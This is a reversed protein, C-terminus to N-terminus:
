SLSVIGVLKNHCILPAGSDGRCTDVFPDKPNAVCLLDDTFYNGYAKVCLSNSVISMNGYTIRDAYPGDWYLQGWGLTQCKTGVEPRHKELSIIKIKTNSRPISDSLVLLAIDYGKRRQFKPHPIVKSVMFEMTTQQKKLRNPSGAVVRLRRPRTVIRHGDVVCHAATLIIRSTIIAGACFHNDGFYATPKRTRISVVHRDLDANIPRYGSSIRGQIKVIRDDYEALTRDVFDQEGKRLPRYHCVDTYLSAAHFSGCGITWSIIGTLTNNCILPGGSDGRCPDQKFPKNEGACLMGEKFRDALKQRCEEPTYLRVGLHTALDSLPGNRCLRGWGLLTCHSGYQPPGVPLKIARIASSNEPILGKLRIIAIDNLNKRVFNTNAVLSRVPYQITTNAPEVRNPTGAVLLLRRPKTIVRRKDMVCHATTLVLDKEIITGACFHNDGFYKQPNRSRISVMYPLFKEMPIPNRSGGAILYTFETEPDEM